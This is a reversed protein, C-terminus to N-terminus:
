HKKRHFSYLYVSTLSSAAPPSATVESDEYWIKPWASVRGNILIPRALVVVYNQGLHKFKLMHKPKSLVTNRNATVTKERFFFVTVTKTGGQIMGREDYLMRLDIRPRADPVRALPARFSLKTRAVILRTYQNKKIKKNLACVLVCQRSQRRTRGNQSARLRPSHSLSVSAAVISIFAGEVQRIM